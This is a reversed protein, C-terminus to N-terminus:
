KIIRFRLHTVEPSEIVRTRELRMQQTVTDEFLRKGDVLLVPVLHIQLEDLLGARIAKQIATVGHLSVIKDGAAEKAREIAREFGDTVFIFSTAGRTIAERGTHTAVFVPVRFPPDEGWTQEAVEFSHRGMVMAGTNAFQEDLVEADRRDGASARPADGKMDPQDAQQGSFIWRHLAEGGEGLPQSKTGSPGTIFGDLSMSINASVKTM